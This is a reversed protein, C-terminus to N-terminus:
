NTCDPPMTGALTGACDRDPDCFYLEPGTAVPLVTLRGTRLFGSATTRLRGNLCLARNSGRSLDQRWCRTKVKIQM